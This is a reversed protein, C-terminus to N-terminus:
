VAESNRKSQPRDRRAMAYAAVFILMFIFDNPGYVILFIGSLPSRGLIEPLESGHRSMWYVWVIIYCLKELAFVLALHVNEKWRRHVSLYALGWLLILVLGFNSFVEPYLPALDANTFGKSFFLVGGLNVLGAVLYGNRIIGPFRERKKIIM